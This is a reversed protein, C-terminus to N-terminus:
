KKLKSHIRSPMKRLERLKELRTRCVATVPTMATPISIDIVQVAGYPFATTAPSTFGRPDRSLFLLKRKQDIQVDENEWIYMPHAGVLTPAAPDSVDYAYIGTVTSAFMTDGLFDISIATALEPINALFQVGSSIAGAPPAPPAVKTAAAGPLVSLPLVVACAATLLRRLM